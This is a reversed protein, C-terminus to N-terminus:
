FTLFYNVHYYVLLDALVPYSITVESKWPYHLHGPGSSLSDIVMGLRETKQLMSEKNRRHELVKRLFPNISKTYDEARIESDNHFLGVAVPLKEWLSLM